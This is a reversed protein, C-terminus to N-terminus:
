KKKIFDFMSATENKYIEGSDSDIQLRLIKFGSICTLNWIQKNNDQNLIAIIKHLKLNQKEAQELAIQKMKELDIKVSESIEGPIKGQQPEAKQSKVGSEDIHFTEIEKDSCYDVQYTNNDSQLDIVFFCACLHSSHNKEKYNRFEDSKKLMEFIEKLEM